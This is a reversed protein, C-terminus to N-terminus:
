GKILKVDNDAVFFYEENDDVLYETIELGHKTVCINLDFTLGVFGSSLGSLVIDNVTQSKYYFLFTDTLVTLKRNVLMQRTLVLTREDPRTLYHLLGYFNTVLQQVTEARMIIHLTAAQEKIHPEGDVDYIGGQMSQENILLRQKVSPIADLTQYTNELVTMGWASLPMEDITMEETGSCIPEDFSGDSLTDPADDFFTISFAQYENEFDEISNTNIRLRREIELEPFYFIRYEKKLLFKVFKLYAQGGKALFKMTISRIELTPNTLDPEIGDYEAWDNSEVAKMSPYQLISQYSNELLCVGMEEIPEGDIVVLTEM